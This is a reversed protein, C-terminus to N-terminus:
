KGECDPVPDWVGTELCISEVSTNGSPFQYGIRCIYETTSYVATFGGANLNTNANAVDPPTECDIM